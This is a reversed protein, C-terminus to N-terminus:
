VFLTTNPNVSGQYKGSPYNGYLSTPHGTNTALTNNQHGVSDPQAAFGYRPNLGARPLVPLRGILLPAMNLVPTARAPCLIVMNM